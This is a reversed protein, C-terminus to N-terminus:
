ALFCGVMLMLRWCLGYFCIFANCSYKLLSIYKLYDFDSNNLYKNVDM